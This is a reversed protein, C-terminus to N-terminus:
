YRLLYTSKLNACVKNVEWQASAKTLWATPGTVIARFDGKDDIREVM